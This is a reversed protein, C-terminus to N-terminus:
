LRFSPGINEGGSDHAQNLIVSLKRDFSALGERRKALLPKMAPIKGQQQCLHERGTMAANCATIKNFGVKGERKVVRRAAIRRNLGSKTHHHSLYLCPTGNLQNQTTNHHLYRGQTGSSWSHFLICWGSIFFATRGRSSSSRSRSFSDM